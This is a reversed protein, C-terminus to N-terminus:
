SAGMSRALRSGSLWAAEIRGGILWDGCLGLRRSADWLVDQGLRGSKAYRWRHVSTVEPAPLAVHALADFAELVFREVVDLREELHAASWDGSAQLVWAEAGDRGPKASNRVASAIIGPNTIRDPGIPLRSGYAAMVTWCPDSPTAIAHAAWDPRHTGVLSAVQEAPVAVIAADFPEAAVDQGHFAWRDGERGIEDVRAQWRVDLDASLARVPASMAPVGVWADDGAASWRAVHGAAAWREVQAVFAPDRATLYQAGHDFSVPGLPTELRRTSMRGGPGRGKDFLVPAHGQEALLTACSLGALGAGIIGIRM